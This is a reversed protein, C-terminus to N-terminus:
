AMGLYTKTCDIEGSCSIPPDVKESRDFQNQNRGARLDSESNTLCIESPASIGYCLPRMVM